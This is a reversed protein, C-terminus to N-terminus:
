SCGGVLDSYRIAAIAEVVITTTPLTPSSSRWAGDLARQARFKLHRCPLANSLRCYLRKRDIGATIGSQCHLGKFKRTPGIGTQTM